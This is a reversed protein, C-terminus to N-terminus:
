EYRLARVPNARATTIVQYAITGWAVALMAVTLMLLLSLGIDIRYPFDDLWADLLLYGVPFAFVVAATVQKLLQVSLLQVLSAMSAGLVKRIGVEKTRQEAAFAALGFLGLCAVITTLFAFLSFVNGLRREAQYADDLKDDLFSFTLPRDAVRGAWAAEVAALAEATRGEVSRVLLTGSAGESHVLVVPKIQQNLPQVHFDKLIGVVRGGNFKSRELSMLPDDGEYLRAATENILVLRDKDTYPADEFNTGEVISLELADLYEDEVFLISLM